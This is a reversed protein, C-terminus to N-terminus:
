FGYLVELMKTYKEKLRTQTEADLAELRDPLLNHRIDIIKVTVADGDTLIRELYKQLDENSRKTLRDITGVEWTWFGHDYLDQKTTATDELIDHGLAVTQLHDPVHEMVWELHEVYPNGLKDYQGEHAARIFDQKYRAKEQPSRLRM